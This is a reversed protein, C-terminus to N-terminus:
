GPTATAPTSWATRFRADIRDQLAILAPANSVIPVGFASVLGVTFFLCGRRHTIRVARCLWHIRFTETPFTMERFPLVFGPEGEIVLRDDEVSLEGRRMRSRLTMTNGLYYFVRAEM